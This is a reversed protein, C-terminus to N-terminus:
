GKWFWSPCPPFYFGLLFLSGSIAEPPSIPPPLPLHASHSPLFWCPSSSAARPPRAGACPSLQGVRWGAAPCPAQALAQPAARGGLGLDGWGPPRSLQQNDALSSKLSYDDGGIIIGGVLESSKIHEAVPSCGQRMQLSHATPNAAPGLLLFSDM